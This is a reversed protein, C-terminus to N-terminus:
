AAQPRAFVYTAEESQQKTQSKNGPRKSNTMTFHHDEVVHWGEQAHLRVVDDLLNHQKGTKFNKVSWCSYHRVHRTVGRVVPALFKDVWEEYTAHRRTSQTEEDSYVELDFYPPSTLGIDFMEDDKLTLLAEEAPLNLITAGTLGLFDRIRVLGNYTAVCPEFATYRASAGCCGIMRGGWGACVDLVSAAHLHRTILKAMVPRYMTIKGLGNTFSLSRIIESAYPTSHYM